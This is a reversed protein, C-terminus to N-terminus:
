GQVKCRMSKPLIVKSKFNELFLRGEQLFIEALPTIIKFIFFAYDSVPKLGHRKYKNQYDNFLSSCLNRIM